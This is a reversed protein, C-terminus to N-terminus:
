GCVQEKFPLRKGRHGAKNPLAEELALTSTCHKPDLARQARAPLTSRVEMWSGRQIVEERLDCTNGMHLPKYRRNRGIATKSIEKVIHASEALPRRHGGNVQAAYYHCFSIVKLFWLYHFWIFYHWMGKSKAVQSGLVLAGLELVWIGDTSKTFDPLITANKKVPENTM